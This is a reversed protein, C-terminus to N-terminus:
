EGGPHAYGASFESTSGDPREDGHGHAVPRGLEGGRSQGLDLANGNQDTRITRSGLYTQGQGYGSPDTLPNAYFDLTMLVSALGNETGASFTGTISTDTGSSVASALTPFDQFHNPGTHGQSDNQLVGPLPLELAFLGPSNSDWDFTGGLDIGLAGNDHISNGEIQVGDSPGATTHFFHRQPLQRPTSRPLPSEMSGTTPM